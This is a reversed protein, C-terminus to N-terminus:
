SDLLLHSPKMDGRRRAKRNCCIKTSIRSSLHTAKQKILVKVNRSIALELAIWDRSFWPSVVLALCATEADVWELNHLFYDHALTPEADEYNKHM